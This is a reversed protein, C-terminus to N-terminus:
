AMYFICSKLYINRQKQQDVRKKLKKIIQDDSIACRIESALSVISCLSAHKQSAAVSLNLTGKSADLKIKSAKKMLIILEKLREKIKYVKISLDSPKASQRVQNNDYQQFLDEFKNILVINVELGKVFAENNLVDDTKLSPCNIRLFADVKNQLFILNTLRKKPVPQAYVEQLDPIENLSSVSDDL